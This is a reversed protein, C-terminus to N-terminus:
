EPGPKRAEILFRQAYCSFPGSARIQQHLDALRAAYRGVSFGPVTSSVRRLFWVVAGVDFFEVRLPQERLDTVELGADSAAAAAQRATCAPGAVPSGALFDTLERNSGAGVQQSLYSGGPGLVRAIEAWRVVSPHRSTVLDFSHDAYPLDAEDGVLEIVAGLPELRQRALGITAEDSTTAALVPPPYRIQELVGGDGTQIDLAAAAAGMRAVLLGAYGWAPREETARGDLWAFDSGRLPATVAEAVLAGLEGGGVAASAAAGDEASGEGAGDDDAPDGDAPGNGPVSEGFV